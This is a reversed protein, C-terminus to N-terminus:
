TDVDPRCCRLVYRIAEPSMYGPSGMLGTENPQAVYNVVMGLDILKVPPPEHGDKEPDWDYAMMVNDPKLDRHLYGTHHMYLISTVIQHFAGAAHHESLPGKKLRDLLMGGGLHELALVLHSPPKEDRCNLFTKSDMASTSQECHITLLIVSCNPRDSTFTFTVSACPSEPASGWVAYCHVFGPFSFRQLALGEARLVPKYDSRIKCDDGLDVVKIVCTRPLDKRLAGSAKALLV